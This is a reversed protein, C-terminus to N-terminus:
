PLAPMAEGVDIVNPAIPSRNLESSCGKVLIGHVEVSACSGWTCKEIEHHIGHKAALESGGAINAPGWVKCGFYLILRVLSSYGAGLSFM